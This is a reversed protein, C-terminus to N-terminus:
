PLAILTQLPMIKAKSVDNNMKATLSKQIEVGLLTNKASQSRMKTDFNQIAPAM